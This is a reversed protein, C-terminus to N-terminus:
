HVKLKKETTSYTGVNVSVNDIKGVEVVKLEDSFILNITLIFVAIVLFQTKNNKM